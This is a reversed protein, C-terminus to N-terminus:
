NKLFVHIRAPVTNNKCAPAIIQNRVAFVPGEHVYSASGQNLADHFFDHALAVFVYDYYAGFFNHCSAEPYQRVALRQPTRNCIDLFLCPAIARISQFERARFHLTCEKENWAIM